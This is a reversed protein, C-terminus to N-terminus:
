ILYSQTLLELLQSAGEKSMLVSMQSVFFANVCFAAVAVPFSSFHSLGTMRNFSHDKM